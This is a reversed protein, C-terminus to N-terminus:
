AAHRVRSSGEAARRGRGAAPLAAAAAATATRTAQGSGSWSSGRTTCKTAGRRWGRSRGGGCPMTSSRTPPPPRSHTPRAPFLPPQRSRPPEPTDNITTPPQVQGGGQGVWLHAGDRAGGAAAPAGRERIGHRWGCCIGPKCLQPAVLTSPLGLPQSARGGARRPRAAHPAGAAAARGGSSWARRWRLAAWREVSVRQGAFPDIESAPAQTAVTRSLEGLNSSYSSGGSAGPATYAAVAARRRAGVARVAGLALQHCQPRKLASM